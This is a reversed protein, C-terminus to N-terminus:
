QVSSIPSFVNGINQHRSNVQQHKKNVQHLPAPRGMQKDGDLQHAGANLIVVSLNFANKKDVLDAIRKEQGGLKEPADM